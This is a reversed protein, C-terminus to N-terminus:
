GVRSGSWGSVRHGCTPPTFLLPRGNFSQTRFTRGDVTLGLSSVLLFAPGVGVVLWCGNDIGSSAYTTVVYPGAQM